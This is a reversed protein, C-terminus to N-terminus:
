PRLSQLITAMHLRLQRALPVRLAGQAHMELIGVIGPHSLNSMIRAERAFMGVLAEDGVLHPLIRKIVVPKMFGKAGESRALYIVGMGGAALRSQLEYKGFQNESGM